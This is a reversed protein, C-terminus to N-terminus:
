KDGLDSWDPLPSPVDDAVNVILEIMYGMWAFNLIPIASILAGLLYKTIWDKDEFSFTFSKGIDM